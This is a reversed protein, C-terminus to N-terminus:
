CTMLIKLVPLQRQGSLGFIELQGVGPVVEIKKYELGKFDLILRVKESFQSLEFQYLEIM